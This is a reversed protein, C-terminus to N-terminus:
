IEAEWCQRPEIGRKAWKRSRRNSSMGDRLKVCTGIGNKAILYEWLWKEARKKM